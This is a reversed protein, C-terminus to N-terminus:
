AHYQRRRRPGQKVMDISTVGFVTELVAERGVWRTHPKPATEYAGQTGGASFEEPDQRRPSLLSTRQVLRRSTTFSFLPINKRGGNLVLM